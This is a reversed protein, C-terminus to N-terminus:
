KNQINDEIKGVRQSIKNVKENIEKIKKDNKQIKGLLYINGELEDLNSDTIIKNNVTLIIVHFKKRNEDTFENFIKKFNFYNM